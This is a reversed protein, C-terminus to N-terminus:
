VNEWIQVVAIAIFRKRFISVFSREKAEHLLLLCQFSPIENTEFFSIINSSINKPSINPSFIGQNRFLTYAYMIAYYDSSPLLNAQCVNM